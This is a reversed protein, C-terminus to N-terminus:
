IAKVLPSLSHISQDPEDQGEDGARERYGDEVLDREPYQVGGADHRHGREVHFPGLREADRGDDRDREPAPDPADKERERQRMPEATGGVPDRRGDQAPYRQGEDEHKDDPRQLDAPEGGVEEAEEDDAERQVGGAAETPPGREVEERNSGG